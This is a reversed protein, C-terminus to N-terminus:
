RLIRAIARRMAETFIAGSVFGVAYGILVILSAELGTM